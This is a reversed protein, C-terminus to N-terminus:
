RLEPDEEGREGVVGGRELPLRRALLDDGGPARDARRHVAREAAESRGPAREGQGEGAHERQAVAEEGALAEEEVQVRHALLQPKRDLADGGLQAGKPALFRALSRFFLR